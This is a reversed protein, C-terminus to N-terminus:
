AQTVGSMYLQVPIVEQGPLNELRGVYLGAPVSPNSARLRVGYGGGEFPEVSVSVGASPITPGGAEISALDSCSPRDEEGLGAVPIFTAEGGTPGATMATAMGRGRERPTGPPTFGADLGERAVEDLLDVGYAWAQAWDKALRSWYRRGDELWDSTSYGGARARSTADDFLALYASASEGFFRIWADLTEQSPASTPIQPFTPPRPTSTTGGEVAGRVWDTWYPCVLGAVRDWVDTTFGVIKLAKVRRVAGLNNVSLFGRDVDIQGDLSFDLSYTMAASRDGDRWYDCHLLTNLRRVLQVEEHFVGHWHADGLSAIEIPAGGGVVEMRKFLMPGREPWNHPDVWEAVHDFPADTEFESFIWTAGLGDVEVVRSDCVEEGVFAVVQHPLRRGTETGAFPRRERASQETDDLLQDADIQNGEAISAALRRYEEGSSERHPFGARALDHLLALRASLSVEEPSADAVARLAEAPPLARFDPVLGPEVPGLTGALSHLGVLAHHPLEADVEVDPDPPRETM